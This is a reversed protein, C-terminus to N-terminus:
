TLCALKKSAANNCRPAFRQSRYRHRRVCRAETHKWLQAGASVHM